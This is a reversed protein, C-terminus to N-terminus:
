ICHFRRQGDALSSSPRIYLDHAAASHGYNDGNGVVVQFNAYAGAPGIIVDDSVTPLPDNAYLDPGLPTGSRLTGDTYLSWNFTQSIIDGTNTERVDSEFTWNNYQTGGAAGTFVYTITM